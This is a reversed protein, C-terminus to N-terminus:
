RAAGVIMRAPWLTIADTTRQCAHAVSAVTVADVHEREDGDAGNKRRAGIVASVRIRRAKPIRWSAGRRGSQERHKRADGDDADVDDCVVEVSLRRSWASSM